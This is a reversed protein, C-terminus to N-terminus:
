YVNSYVSPGILFPCDLSVLLTVFVFFVCCLFNFLNVVHVVGFVAPLGLYGRLTFLEQKKYSVLWTVWDICQVSSYAFMCLYCLYSMLRGVFLQPYLCNKKVQLISDLIGTVHFELYLPIKYSLPITSFITTMLNLQSM